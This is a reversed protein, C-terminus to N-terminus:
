NPLDTIKERGTEDLGTHSLIVVLLTLVLYYPKFQDDDKHALGGNGGAGLSWVKDM